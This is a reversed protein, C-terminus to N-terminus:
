VTPYNTNEDATVVEFGDLHHAVARAFACIDFKKEDRGYRNEITVFLPNTTM